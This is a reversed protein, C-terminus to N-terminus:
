KGQRLDTLKYYMSRFTINEEDCGGESDQRESLREMEVEKIVKQENSTKLELGM